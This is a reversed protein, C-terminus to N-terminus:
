AEEAKATLRPSLEDNDAVFLGGTRDAVLQLFDLEAQHCSPEVSVYYLTTIAEQALLDLLAPEEPPTATYEFDVFVKNPFTLESIQLEPWVEIDLGPVTAFVAKLQQVTYAERHLFFWDAAYEPGVPVPVEASRRPKGKSATKGAVRASPRATKKEPYPRGNKDLRKSKNGNNGSKGQM